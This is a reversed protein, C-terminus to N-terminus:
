TAIIHPLPPIATIPAPCPTPGLFSKITWIVHDVPQWVEGGGLPPNLWCRGIKAQFIGTKEWAWYYKCTLMIPTCEWPESGRKLWYLTLSQFLPHPKLNKQLFVFIQCSNQNKFYGILGDTIYLPQRISELGLADNLNNRNETTVIFLSM